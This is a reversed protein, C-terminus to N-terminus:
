RARRLSLAARAASSPRGVTGVGTLLRGHAWGTSVRLHRGAPVVVGPDRDAGEIGNIAVRRRGVATVEQLRHEGRRPLGAGPASADPQQPQSRDAEREREEGAHDGHRDGAALAALLLFGRAPGAAAHDDVVDHAFGPGRGVPRPLGRERMLVPLELVARACARDRAPLSCTRQLPLRCLVDGRAGLREGVPRAELVLRRADDAIARAIVEGSDGLIRRREARRGDTARGLHAVRTGDRTAEGIAVLIHRLERVTRNAVDRDLLKLHAVAALRRALPALAVLPDDPHRLSRDDREGAVPERGHADRVLRAPAILGRGGLAADEVVDRELLQRV